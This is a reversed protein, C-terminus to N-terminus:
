GLPHAPHGSRHRGPRQGPDPSTDLGANQMATIAAGALGDNAAFVADVENNADTLIQEMIRGAEDNDWDPVDEDAVLNWDGADVRAQCPRTTARRSSAARQRRDSRRQADRREASSRARPRRHRARAGRGDDPGGGVNDFSVYVDAGDGEVTSVPRLEVAAM